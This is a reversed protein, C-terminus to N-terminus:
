RRAEELRMIVFEGLHTRGIEGGPMAAGSGSPRWGFIFASDGGDRARRVLYRTAELRVPDDGYTRELYAEVSEAEGLRDDTTAQLLRFRGESCLGGPSLEGAAGHRVLWSRQPGEIRVAPTTPVAKATVVEILAPLDPSVDLGALSTAAEDFAVRYRHSALEDADYALARPASNRGSPATRAISGKFSDIHRLVTRRATRGDSSVEFIDLDLSASVPEPVIFLAAAAFALSTGGVTLLVSLRGRHRHYTLGLVVGLVVLFAVVSARIRLIADSFDGHEPLADFLGPRLRADGGPRQVSELLLRYERAGRGAWGAKSSTRVAFGFILGRGFGASVRIIAPQGDRWLVVDANSGGYIRRWSPWDTPEGSVIRRTFLADQLGILARRSTVIFRGGSRIWLALAERQRASLIAPNLDDIVVLDVSAYDTSRAPLGGAPIQVVRATIGDSDGIPGSPPYAGGSASPNDAAFVVLRESAGLPKFYDAVPASALVRGDSSTIEVQPPGGAAGLQPSLATSREGALSRPGATEFRIGGSIVAVTCKPLSQNGKTRIIVPLPEGPRYYPGLLSRIKVTVDDNSALQHEDCWAAGAAALILALCMLRRIM